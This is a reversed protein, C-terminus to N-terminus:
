AGASQDIEEKPQSVHYKRKKASLLLSSMHFGGCKKASSIIPSKEIVSTNVRRSVPTQLGSSQYRDTLAGGGGSVGTSAVGGTGGTQLCYVEISIVFDPRLPVIQM